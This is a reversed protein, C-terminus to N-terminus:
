IECGDDGCGLEPRKVDRKMEDSALKACELSLRTLIGEMRWWPWGLERLKNCVDVLANYADHHGDKM